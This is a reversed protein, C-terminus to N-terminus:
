EVYEYVNVKRDQFPIRMSVLTGEFKNPKTLRYLRKEDGFTMAGEGSVIIGVGRLGKELLHTITRLGYGRERNSKASLGGVAERIAEWDGLDFGAKRLSEPISIGNDVICLELFRMKPYKQAMIYAVSFESHDYVNDILEGAMYGFVDSGGVLDGKEIDILKELIKNRGEESLPIKLVPLATTSPSYYKYGYTIYKFYSSATPNEPPIYNFGKNEALFVAVPLLQTPYFWDEGSLDLTKTNYANQRLRCFWIYHRLLASSMMSIM